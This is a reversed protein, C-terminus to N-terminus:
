IKLQKRVVPLHRRSIEFRKDCNRLRMVTQGSANKELAMVHDIAVLTSRHIRLFHQPFKEELSSLSDETLVEGETYGVTVYKQDAQFYLIEAIPIRRIERKSRVNLYAPEHSEDALARIAELQARNLRKVSDLAEQLAAERVPKLLYDLAHTKFAQLAYDNYATTFIIAPPLPLQGLQRAAELGDMGPMRIDMLVVEPQHQHCLALAQQGNGAEAVLQHGGIRELLKGLRQRALAEDDVILIKM